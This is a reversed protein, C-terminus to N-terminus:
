LKNFSIIIIYNKRNVSDNLNDIFNSLPKEEHQPLYENIYKRYCILGIIPIRAFYKRFLSTYESQRWQQIPSLFIFAICNDEPFNRSKLNQFKQILLDHEVDLCVSYTELNEGVFALGLCCDSSSGLICTTKIVAIVIKNKYKKLYYNIIKNCCPLNVYEFLMLCKVQKNEPIGISTLMDKETIKQQICELRYTINFLHVNLESLFPLFLASIGVGCEIKSIRNEGTTGIVFNNSSTCVIAICDKPLFSTLFNKWFIEIHKEFAELTYENTDNANYKDYLEVNKFYKRPNMLVEKSFFLIALKPQNPSSLTRYIIERIDFDFMFNSSPYEPEKISRECQIMFISFINKRRKKDSEAIENWFKCVRACKNLDNNIWNYM